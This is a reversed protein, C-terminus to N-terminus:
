REKIKVAPYALRDLWGYLQGIEQRAATLDALYQEVLERLKKVQERAADRERKLCQIAERAMTVGQQDCPLSVDLGMVLMRWLDGNLEATVRLTDEFQYVSNKYADREVWAARLAATVEAFAADGAVRGMSDSVIRELEKLRTEDMEPM